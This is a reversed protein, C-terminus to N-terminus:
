FLGKNPGLMSLFELTLFMGRTSGFFAHMPPFSSCFLELSMESDSFMRFEICLQVIFFVNTRRLMCAMAGVIFAICRVRACLARLAAIRRLKRMHQLHFVGSSVRM